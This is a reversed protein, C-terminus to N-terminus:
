SRMGGAKYTLPLNRRKWEIYTIELLAIYNELSLREFDNLPFDFEMAERFNQIALCLQQLESTAM